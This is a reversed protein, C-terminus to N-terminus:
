AYGKGKLVTADDNAQARDAAQELSALENPM